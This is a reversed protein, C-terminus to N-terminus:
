PRQGSRGGRRSRLRRGGTVGTDVGTDTFGRDPAGSDVVVVGSDPTGGDTEEPDECALPALLLLPTLWRFKLV